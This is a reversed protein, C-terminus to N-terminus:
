KEKAARWAMEMLELKEYGRSLVLWGPNGNNQLHGGLAAIHFLADTVTVIKRKTLPSMERIVTLTVPDLATTAPADPKIRCITRLLLLKTAISIFMALVILLADLRELQRSEFACGTKLAKFFEEIGWRARYADVVAEIEQATGVPESTTLFWEVPDAGKPVTSREERVHVVNVRLAQPHAKDVYHPRQIELTASKFRLLATRQQRPPHERKRKESRKHGRSTIPVERTFSGSKGAFLERVNHPSEHDTEAGALSRKGKTRIIFSTSASALEALLVFDDAERDALHLARGAGLLDECNRIGQGWRRSEKDPREYQQKLTGRVPGERRVLPQMMLVGIPLHHPDATFAMSFHGLFGQDNKNLRGLGERLEEGGFRFESTDHVILIRRFELSKQVTHQAHPEFVREYNVDDNKLMRYFGELEARSGMMVPFSASPQNAMRTMVKALRKSMAKNCPVQSALGVCDIPEM